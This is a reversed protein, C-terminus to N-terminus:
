AQLLSADSDYVQVKKWLQQCNEVFKHHIPDVQYNNQAELDDFVLMLHYSYTNDIVPRDTPAPKGLHFDKVFKVKSLSKIGEELKSAEEANDPNKLWFYVNHIFRSKKQTNAMLTTSLLGTSALITSFRKLFIRRPKSM